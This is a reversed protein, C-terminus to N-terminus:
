FKFPLCCFEQLIEGIKNKRYNQKMIAYWMHPNFLDYSVAIRSPKPPITQGCCLM